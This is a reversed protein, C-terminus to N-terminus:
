IYSFDYVYNFYQGWLQYYTYFEVVYSKFEM